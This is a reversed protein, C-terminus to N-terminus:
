YIAAFSTKRPMGLKSKFYNNLALLDAELQKEYTRGMALNSYRIDETAWSMLSSASSTSQTLRLLYVAALAIAMEDNSEVLPPSSQTFEIYPNRFVDGRILGDPIYGTGHATNAYVYGSPVDSPQPVVVLSDDFVQYKALWRSQLYKVANVLATRVITDSYTAGTLDGFMPRVLTMLYDINISDEYYIVETM